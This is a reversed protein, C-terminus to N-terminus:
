LLFLKCDIEPLGSIMLELERPEFISLMARPVMQELGELFSEIQEKIETAMKAYCVLSVYEQKNEETVLVNRGNPKLDKVVVQGFEDAEYSFTLDLGEIPNTLIWSLNKYYDPDIDEMDTYHIAVGCMHKYFSRTFFADLLFGDHLAKGVIIGVFKFYRKHDPNVGSHPNPQFTEGTASTQFLAYNPNFIEKSLSLYWERTLGGADNGEEGRFEIQLKGKLTESPKNMIQNFSDLFIENRRVAIHLPFEKKNHKKITKKFFARKNEFSIARPMKKLIGSLSTTLLKIDKEVIFNIFPKNFDCMLTFLDNIGLEKSNRFKSIDLQDDKNIEDEIMEDTLNAIAVSKKRKLKHGRSTSTKLQLSSIHDDDKLIKFSIFFCEVLPLLNETHPHIQKIFDLGEESCIKLIEILDLWFHFIHQDELLHSFRGRVMKKTEEDLSIEESDQQEDEELIEKEKKKRYVEFYKEFLQEITKFVKLLRTEKRTDGLHYSLAEVFEPSAILKQHKGTKLMALIKANEATVPAVLSQLSRKMEEIFSTLNGADACLLSIISGLTTLSADELSDRTLASCLLSVHPADLRFNADFDKKQKKSRLLVQHIVGLTMGISSHDTVLKEIQLLEILRCFSNENRKLGHHQRIRSVESLSPSRKDEKSEDMTAASQKLFFTHFEAVTETLLKLIRHSLLKYIEDYNTLVSPYMSIIRPPFRMSKKMLRDLGPQELIFLLTDYIRAQNSYNALVVSLLNFNLSRSSHSAYLGSIISEILSEKIKNIRLFVTTDLQNFNKNESKNSSKEMDEEPEMGLAGMQDESDSGFNMMLEQPLFNMNFLGLGGLGPNRMRRAEQILEPTLSQLFHDPCSMLVEARMDPTLSNVFDVNEQSFLGEVVLNNIPGRPEILANNEPQIGPSAPRVFVVPQQHEANEHLENVIPEPPRPVPSAAVSAQQDNARLRRAVLEDINPELGEEDPRSMNPTMLGEGSEFVREPVHVGPETMMRDQRAPSEFNLIRKQPRKCLSKAEEEPLYSKIVELKMSEELIDFFLPDINHKDLFNSKLGWEKLNFGSAPKMFKKVGLPDYDAESESETEDSESSVQHRIVPMEELLISAISTNNLGGERGFNPGIDPLRDGESSRSRSRSRRRAPSRNNEQNLHRRVLDFINGAFPNANDGAIVIRAEQNGERMRIGPSREGFFRLQNNGDIRLDLGDINRNLAATWNRKSSIANPYLNKLVLSEKRYSDRLKLLFSINEKYLYKEKAHSTEWEELLSEFQNTFEDMQWDIFETYLLGATDQRQFFPYLKSVEALADKINEKKKVSPNHHIITNDSESQDESERNEGSEVTHSASTHTHFFSGEQDEEANEVQDAFPLGEANIQDNESEEHGEEDEDGELNSDMEEDGDASGIEVHLEANNGAREFDTFLRILEEPSIEAQPLDDDMEEEGEESGFDDEEFGDEDDFDMYDTTISHTSSRDHHSEEEDGEEQGGQELENQLDDMAAEFMIDDPDESLEDEDQSEEEDLLNGEAMAFLPQPGQDRSDRYKDIESQQSYLLLLSRKFNKANKEPWRSRFAEFDNMYVALPLKPRSEAHTLSYYDNHDLIKQKNAHCIFNIKMLYFLASSMVDYVDDHIEKTELTFSEVCDTLVKQCLYLNIEGHPSIYKLHHIMSALEQACFCYVSAMRLVYYRNPVGLENHTENGYAKQAKLFKVEERLKQLEGLVERFFIRRIGSNVTATFTAKMTRETITVYSDKCCGSLFNKFNKFDVFMVVRVYFQIFNIPINERLEKSFRDKIWPNRLKKIIKNLNYTSVYKLLLPYRICINSLGEILYSLSVIQKSPTKEPELNVRDVLLNSCSRIIEKMLVMITTTSDQDPVYEKEKKDDNKLTIYQETGKAHIECKDKTAKLVFDFYSNSIKKFDNEFKDLKVYKDELNEKNEPDIMREDKKKQLEKAKQHVIFYNKVEHRISEEVLKDCRTLEDIVAVFARMSLVDVSQEGDPALNGCRCLKKLLECQKVAEKLEPKERMFKFFLNGISSLLSPSIINLKQKIFQPYNTLYDSVASILDKKLFDIALKEKDKVKSSKKGQNKRASPGGAAPTIDDKVEEKSFKLSKTGIHSCAELLLSLFEVIKDFRRRLADESMSLKRIELLKHLNLFSDVAFSLIFSHDKLIDQSLEEDDNSTLTIKVLGVLVKMQRLFNINGQKIDRIFNKSIRCKPADKTGAIPSGPGEKEKQDKHEPKYFIYARIEAIRGVIQSFTSAFAKKSNQELKSQVALYIDSLSDVQYEYLTLKSTFITKLLQGMWKKAEVAFEHNPIDIPIIELLTTSTAANDLNEEVMKEGSSIQLLPIPSEMKVDMFEPLIPNEEMGIERNVLISDQANKIDEAAQKALQEAKNVIVMFKPMFDVASNISTQLFSHIHRLTDYGTSVNKLVVKVNTEDEIKPGPANADDFIYTRDLIEVIEQPMNSIIKTLAVIAELRSANFRKKQLDEEDKSSTPEPKQLNFYDGILKWCIALKPCLTELVYKLNNLDKDVKVNLEPKKGFKDESKPEQISKIKTLEDKHFTIFNLGFLIAKVCFQLVGKERLTILVTIGDFTHLMYAFTQIVKALRFANEYTYEQSLEVDTLIKSCESVYDQIFPLKDTINAGNIQRIIKEFAKPSTENTFMEMAGFTYDSFQDFTIEKKGQAIVGPWNEIRELFWKVKVEVMSREVEIVKPVYERLKKDEDFEFQTKNAQNVSKLFEAILGIGHYANAMVLLDRVDEDAISEGAFVAHSTVSDNQRFLFHGMKMFHVKDLRKLRVLYFDCLEGLLEYCVKVAPEKQTENGQQNIMRGYAGVLFRRQKTVVVDFFPQQIVIKTFRELGKISALELHLNTRQIDYFKAYFKTVNQSLKELFLFNDRLDETFTWGAKILEPADEPNFPQCKVIKPIIKWLEAYFTEMNKLFRDLNSIIYPTTSHKVNVLDILEEALVVLSNTSDAGSFRRINHKVCRRDHISNFAKELCPKAIKEEFDEPKYPNNILKGLFQIFFGIFEFDMAESTLYNEILLNTLGNETISRITPNVINEPMETLIDDLFVVLPNFIKRMSPQLHPLEQWLQHEAAERAFQSIQAIYYNKTPEVFLSDVLDILEVLYELLKEESLSKITGDPAKYKYLPKKILAMLLDLLKKVINSSAGMDLKLMEFILGVLKPSFQFYDCSDDVLFSLYGSILDFAQTFDGQIGNDISRDEFIFVEKIFEVIPSIFREESSAFLTKPLVENTELVLMNEIDEVSKKRSSRQISLRSVEAASKEKQLCRHINAMIRQLLKNMHGVQEANFVDFQITSWKAQLLGIHLELPYDRNLLLQELSEWPLDFIVPSFMKKNTALLSGNVKDESLMHILCIAKLTLISLNVGSKTTSIENLFLVRLRIAYMLPSDESVPHKVRKELFSTISSTFQTAPKKLIEQVTFTKENKSESLEFDVLQSFDLNYERNFDITIEPKQVLELLKKNNQHNPLLNELDFKCEQSLANMHLCCLYVFTIMHFMKEKLYDHAIEKKRFAQLYHIFLDMGLILNEFRTTNKFVDLLLDISKFLVFFKAQKLQELLQVGAKLVLHIGEESGIIQKKLADVKDLFILDFREFLTIVDKPKLNITYINTIKWEVIAELFEDGHCELFPTLPIRVEDPIPHRPTISQLLTPPYPREPRDVVPETM